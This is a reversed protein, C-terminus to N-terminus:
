AAQGARTANLCAQAMEYKREIIGLAANCPLCLLGRICRGCSSKEDPCCAHDHDICPAQGELFPTFCMACANQPAALLQAFSERTLGYRSLKCALNWRRRAVPDHPRERAAGRQRPAEMGQADVQRM